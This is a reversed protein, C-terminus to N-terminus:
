KIILKSVALGEDSKLQVLYNGTGIGKLSFTGDGKESQLGFSKVLKGNLDYINIQGNKAKNYRIKLLGDTAPNQVIQLSTKNADIKTEDTALATQNGFIRFEGPQLVVTTSGSANMSSNDMLNYWTGSYPFNPTVTQATTTFNAVVVVNKLSSSPLADNWIYIKPLLNGSEVTFTTTDFVQSSLRIALIKSWTDYVAKRNANTDYGLTFAVPKPSTRCDNSITGDECRNISFEYGLEGFQWIMKPGPVTFFVAGFAKQRDLATNLDKVSYSGNANGYALNKFMLREEDHSEGYSVNRRESFTHNEFDVRNFNSESDYGMTNQNYAGVLNDWMMVGKGENIRYNAWQQEEADTGLHEFIIYSTPDYSWQYDSYLKLVDVRDQQYAGTCAEDSTTCNQTFGKTLDWRFGDIKYEKIWHELVRNVYYRTEEKSHNFDYFVSYAHKAVQNFYPNNAAVDGYGGTTSTSWLRELPSRGTAHNLAVDLIVAIGNQHCKDIFEKFKEPTGYAKDLALHFGPNYGWSNNGDFEMVPMLEIANINLGKIYPIKDILSQWNQQATFDRVLAEYVMLNQKAPKQFNTVTWNYAPKATQIVSVDYQQGAPYAPLNPYTSSSIWPDDDPSLVLTSYPDAVKVGDSTRYQFTYVQQPTLGSIEIWYLNPNTADRKMLYNSSVEWNNFSGIVHVYSKFPAYLALGVKTPDNPDYNIGQRIYSPIAATQVTPTPSISFKSTLVTGDLVSTAIVEMQSDVTVNYPTFMSTVNNASYVQNGNAKVVFNAALSTSYSIPYNSGSSIFNVTGNKPTTNVFQFKGVESYIDQSQGNGTKTKLLFGIRGIGTRNYFTRPVFTITYTDTGSNYTLRNTESSSGWTGNTPCDISNADNSDYSWAWLYLANNTVGWTSENISSGNFTITISEDENFSSPSISYTVTQTQAYASIAIFFAILNYFLKM